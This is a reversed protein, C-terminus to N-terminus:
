HNHGSNQLDHVVDEAWDKGQAFLLGIVMAWFVTAFAYILGDIRMMIPDIRDLMEVVFQSLTSLSGAFGSIMSSLVISEEPGPNGALLSGLSGSLACGLLNCAFTGLPISPRYNNYKMLKWRALCGLPSFLLSIAFQQQKREESTFAVLTTIQCILALIFISTFIARVSLVRESVHKDVRNSTSNNDNSASSTSITDAAVSYNGDESSMINDNDENEKVHDAYPLSSDADKSSVRLGYGRREDIEVERRCRWVFIYVAL